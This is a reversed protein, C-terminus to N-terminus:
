MPRRPNPYDKSILSFAGRRSSSHHSASKQLEAHGLSSTLADQSEPSTPVELHVRHSALADCSARDDCDATESSCSSGDVLDGDIHDGDLQDGDLKLQEHSSVPMEMHPEFMLEAENAPVQAIARYLDTGFMELQQNFVDPTFMARVEGKAHLVMDDRSCRPLWALPDESSSFKALSAMTVLIVDDCFSWQPIVEDAGPDLWFGLIVRPVLQMVTERLGLLLSSSPEVREMESLRSFAEETARLIWPECYDPTLFIWTM